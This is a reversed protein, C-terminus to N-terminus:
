ETNLKRRHLFYKEVWKRSKQVQSYVLCLSTSRVTMLFHNGSDTMEVEEGGRKWEERSIRVRSSRGSGKIHIEYDCYYYHWGSGHKPASVRLWVVCLNKM